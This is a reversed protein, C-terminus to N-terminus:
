YMSILNKRFIARNLTLPTPIYYGFPVYPSFQFIAWYQADDFNAFAKIRNEKIYEMIALAKERSSMVALGNSGVVAYYSNNNKSRSLKMKM